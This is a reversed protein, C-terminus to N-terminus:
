PTNQNHAKKNKAIKLDTLIGIALYIVGFAVFAIPPNTMIPYPAIYGIGLLINCAAALPIFPVTWINISIFKQKAISKTEEDSITIGIGYIMCGIVIFIVGIAIASANQKDYWIMASAIIGILNFATGAVSFISANPKKKPQTVDKPLPEIGKLLYDTTVEFLESMAIVKELDPTSQESEWKSVAQRSVGVKDALEEQSYGKQKRLYQIRDAINM